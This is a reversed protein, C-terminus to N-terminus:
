LKIKKELEQIARYAMYKGGTSQVFNTVAQVAVQGLKSLIPGM